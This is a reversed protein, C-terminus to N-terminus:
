DERRGEKLSFIKMIVSATFINFSIKFICILSVSFLFSAHWWESIVVSCDKRTEPCM